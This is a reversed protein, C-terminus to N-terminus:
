YFRHGVIVAYFLVQFSLISFCYKFPCYVFYNNDRCRYLICYVGGKGIHSEEMHIDLHILRVKKTLLSTKQVAQPFASQGTCGM